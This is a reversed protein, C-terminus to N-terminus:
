DIMANFIEDFYVMYSSLITNSIKSLFENNSCESHKKKVLKELNEEEKLKAIEMDLLYLEKKRDPDSRYDSLVTFNKM